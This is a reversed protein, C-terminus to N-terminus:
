ECGVGEERWGVEGSEVGWLDGVKGGKDAGGGGISGSM